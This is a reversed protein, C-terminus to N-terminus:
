RINHPLFSIPSSTACHTLSSQLALSAPIAEAPSCSSKPFCVCWRKEKALSVVLVLGWPNIGYNQAAWGILRLSVCCQIREKQTPIERSFKCSFCLRPHLSLLSLHQVATRQESNINLDAVLLHDLPSPLLFFFYEVLRKYLNSLIDYQLTQTQPKKTNQKLKMDAAFTSAQFYPHYTIKTFRFFGKSLENIVLKYIFHRKRSFNFLTWLCTCSRKITDM